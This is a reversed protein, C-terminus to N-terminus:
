WKLVAHCTKRYLKLLEDDTKCLSIAFGAMEQTTVYTGIWKDAIEINKEKLYEYIEKYVIHLEMMTTAGCNNLLVLVKEGSVFPKDNIIEDLMFRTLDRADTLKRRGRGAEGHVGMGVEVEDEPLEFMKRGTEPHTGGVITFTLTRTYDRVRESLSILEELSYGEEAAASVIKWNFFLGATGRREEPFEKPGSYVDDWLIVMRADIGKEMAYLLGMRANMIDGAHSSVLVLVGAGRDALEIGRAVDEGSPAAFINGLVNVDILGEGVLEIMCPEHGVGNAVVIGVKGQEKKDKRVVFKDELIEIIDSDAYAYGLVMDKVIEDRNNKIKKM